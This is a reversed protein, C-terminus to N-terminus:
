HNTHGGPGSLLSQRSATTEVIFVDGGRFAFVHGYGGARGELGARQVADLRNAADMSHRSVLVRPVGVGDDAAALSQIGQAGGLDNGPLKGEAPLPYPSPLEQLQVSGGGRRDMYRQYFGLSREILDGLARGIQRGREHPSGEARVVRIGNLAKM